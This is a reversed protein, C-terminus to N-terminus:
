SSGRHASEAPGLYDLSLRGRLPDIRSLQVTVPTGDALNPASFLTGRIAYDLLEGTAGDRTAIAILPRDLATQELHKLIWYRKARRELDRGAADAAEAGALVKLLEESSYPPAGSAALAAVLQRQLVLDAYRRIPSSLQAYCDIGIGTHLDPHLSLRPRQAAYDGGSDPQVRYIIPIAHTAAYRAAVSNSLVMLEAVLLRSPSANDLVKIEIRGDSVKVNPERRTVLVAGRIRRRERLTDTAIHLRALLARLPDGDAGGALLSDADQYSLRKAIRIREPYLKSEVIEGLPSLVVETTLVPREAGELLSASGCSIPDPLMRATMEPLYVTTARTAAEDDIPGGRAVFDAVLAIHVRVCVAGGELLEASIADDVEVTDDDDIAIAFRDALPRAPPSAARAEALAAESFEIRVGGIVAFRGGEPAAGLRDLIEYAAEAPEIEPAAQQLMATIDRSRTFPNQLYRRLEDVLPATEDAAPTAGDSIIDRLLRQTRRYDNSRARIRDHQVRLREVQDRPRVQFEMHRRVFFLRDALLAELMVSVGAGSRRGFFLEALESATFSRGQEQVVEWLLNLDLESALPEREATFEAIVKPANDRDCTRDPHRLLVLDRAVLRERGDADLVAIHREQERLQVAPKLKGADLYEVLVGQNKQSQAVSVSM